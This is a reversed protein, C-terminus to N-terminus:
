KLFEKLKSIIFEIEKIGYRQDIPLHLLNSTLQFEISQKGTSQLVNPWYQACYIGHGFLKKRLDPNNIYFPYVFPVANESLELHIKNITHLEKHLYIYNERRASAANSYDIGQLMTQTLKSMRLLPKNNLSKENEVFFPYGIEATEDIRRLLHEFRDYSFDQGIETKLFKDTFLFSGDALGFFKRPSYFTDVGQIHLTFFAQANDIILNQCMPAIGAIYDEKLGFYNIYLFAENKKIKDFDFIVELKDNIFYFEYDIGLRLVPQLLVDCFFYPFYIKKYKKALLIYELCNRGTNLRLAGKHYEVGKHLEIGFYGGIANM